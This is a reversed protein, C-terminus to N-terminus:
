VLNNKFMSATAPPKKLHSDVLLLKLCLTKTGSLKSLAM